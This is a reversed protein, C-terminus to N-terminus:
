ECPYYPQTPEPIPRALQCGISSSPEYLVVSGVVFAVALAVATLALLRRVVRV